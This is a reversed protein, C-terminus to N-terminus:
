QGAEGGYVERRLTNQLERLCELLLPNFAGCDGAMIMEMAKEFTYPAKYARRSVLADFVDALGAAQAAIPIEAGKLGDPYGRGDIREHHWRCIEAATELLPEGQYDKMSRLISEGIVCHEKMRHFEEPTLKGPKNLIEDPIVLKGIDHFMAASGIRRCDQLTLRYKGTKETLRELLLETLQRIRRAHGTGEGNRCGVIRALMDTMMGNLREQTRSQQALVAALRRQWAYLKVTNMVRRQVVQIDFPREIYDSVGLEYAQRMSERSTDATIMIVPISDLLERQRMERLVQIGNMEPMILDLLVLAIDTGYKELLAFCATGGEAELVQFNERLMDRLIARNLSADDVILIRQATEGDDPHAADRETVLMDKTRKARYMLRDARWAVM